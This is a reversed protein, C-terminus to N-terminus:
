VNFTLTHQRLYIVDEAFDDLQDTYDHKAENTLMADPPMLALLRALPFSGKGYHLHSDRWTFFDGDTLHYMAPNLELLERIFSFPERKLSNAACIAHGFDLCFRAKLAGTIFVIEQPTAGIGKEGNLGTVPKNEILCRGDTFPLLQAVTEEASGDLGSHFIIYKARLSDAFQFTEAIKIKNAEREGALALNMGALSHPAHIVFPIDFQKWYNITDEFSGPFVFLEIYQFYKKEYLEFIDKTYDLNKTGLKLGLLM